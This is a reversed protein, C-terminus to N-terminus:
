RKSNEVSLVNLNNNINNERDKSQEENLRIFKRKKKALCRFLFVFFIIAVICFVISILIIYLNLDKEQKFFKKLKTKARQFTSNSQMMEQAQIINTLNDLPELNNETEEKEGTKEEKNTISETKVEEVKETEKKPIKTNPIQENKNTEEIKITSPIEEKKKTEQIEM